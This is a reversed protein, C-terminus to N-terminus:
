LQTFLDVAKLQVRVLPWTSVAAQWTAAIFQKRQWGPYKLPHPSPPAKRNRERKITRIINERIQRMRMCHTGPKRKAAGAM